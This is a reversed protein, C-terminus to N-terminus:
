GGFFVTFREEGAGGVIEEEGDGLALDGVSGAGVAGVGDLELEGEVGVVEVSFEEAVVALVDGEIESGLAVLAEDLGGDHEVLLEREEGAREEKADADEVADGVLDAGQFDGEGDGAWLDPVGHGVVHQVVIFSGM